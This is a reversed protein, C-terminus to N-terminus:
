LSQSQSQSRSGIRSELYVSGKFNDTLHVLCQSQGVRVRVSRIARCPVVRCPQTMGKVRCDTCVPVSRLSLTGGAPLPRNRNGGLNYNSHKIM